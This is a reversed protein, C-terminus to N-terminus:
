KLRSRLRGAAFTAFTRLRSNELRARRSVIHVPVESDDFRQLVSVVAKSELAAHAQYSLVRAVGIGAVAADVAADASNVSLRPTVRVVKRGHRRSNFIWRPGGSIQGFSVCDCKSLQEVKEIAGIRQLLSPAAITVIKLAGVRTAVLDSDKMRGVRVAVDVDEDALDVIRDALVLDINIGPYRSVFDTVIPVVHLRGLGLPATVAIRGSLEASLGAISAETEQLMDLITRCTGLYTRGAPTLALKRTTREILTFGLHDELQSLHRSINTLPERLHRAAGSLSGAEAVASFVAIARMKDM